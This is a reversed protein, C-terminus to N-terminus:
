KIQWGILANGDTCRRKNTPGASLFHRAIDANECRENRPPPPKQKTPKNTQQNTQKILKLGHSYFNPWLSTLFIPAPSL